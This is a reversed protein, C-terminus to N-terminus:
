HNGLIYAKALLNPLEVLDLPIDPAKAKLKQGVDPLSKAIQELSNRQQLTMMALSFDDLSVLPQILMWLYAASQSESRVKGHKIDALCVEANQILRRNSRMTMLVVADEHSLSDKDVSFILRCVDETGTRISSLSIEGLSSLHSLFTRFAVDEEKIFRLVDAKGKFGKATQKKLLEAYNNLATSKGVGSIKEGDITAFFRANQNIISRETENITVDSLAERINIYDEFTVPTKDVLQAMEQRISDNTNVCATMCAMNDAHVDRDIASVVSDRCTHWQKCLAIIDDGSKIKRSKVDRLFHSYSTLAEQSSKYSMDDGNSCASLLLAITGIQFISLM